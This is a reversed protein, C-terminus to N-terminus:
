PAAPSPGAPAAERKPVIPLVVHSPRQRDHYIRQEARELRTTKGLPEGTSPSRDYKPFASSVIELRIRHDKGFLQCTNWADIDCRQAM